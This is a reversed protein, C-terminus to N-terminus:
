PHKRYVFVGDVEECALDTSFRLLSESIGVLLAGGPRLREALNAVVTEIRHDGFYILVHRCLVLDFRGLAAVAAADCLNLRALSIADLLRRPVVLEDGERALWRAALEEGENRVARGRYRGRRARALSAESIDTAVIECHELAGREALLMALSLPEEGNACAASWIRARGGAAVVPMVFREIATTLARLERFFYSEHVLLAEVLLDLAAGGDPDYRLHYYYELLSEYGVERAHDELKDSFLERERDRYHLGTREEVLAALLALVPTSVTV